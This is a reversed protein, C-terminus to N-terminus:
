PPDRGKRSVQLLAADAPDLAPQVGEPIAYRQVALPGVPIGLDEEFLLDRKLGREM